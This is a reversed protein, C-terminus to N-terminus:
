KKVLKLHAKRTPGNDAIVSKTKETDKCPTNNAFASEAKSASANRFLVRLFDPQLLLLDLM